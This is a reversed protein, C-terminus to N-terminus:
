NSIIQLCAGGQMFYFHATFTILNLCHVSLYVNFQILVVHAPSVRTDTTADGPSAIVAEARWSKMRLIQPPIRVKFQRRSVFHNM